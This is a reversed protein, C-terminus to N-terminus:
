LLIGQPAQITLDACQGDDGTTTGNSNTVRTRLKLTAGVVFPGPANGSPDAVVENTFDTDTGVVM